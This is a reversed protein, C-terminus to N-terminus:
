GLGRGREPLGHDGVLRVFYARTLREVEVLGGREKRYGLVVEDGGPGIPQVLRGGIALQEILPPPVTPAAAAVVIADFPAHEPFGLTGDGVIITAGLIGASELNKRAQEALDGFREISFVERALLALIATQFGLGTGVELVKESGTLRLGELMRGVLSPQTTVQGHPIPIPRDVYAVATADEPVFSARAVQRFADLVRPDRIGERRITRLLDELEPPSSILWPDM